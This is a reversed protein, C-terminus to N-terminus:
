PLLCIQPDLHLLGQCLTWINNLIGVIVVLSHLLYFSLNQTKWKAKKEIARKINEVTSKFKEQNNWLFSLNQSEMCSFLDCAYQQFLTGSHLLIDKRLPADFDDRIQCLYSAYDM